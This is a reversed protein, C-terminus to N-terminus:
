LKSLENKIWEHYNAVRTYVGYYNERACGTGFSVVGLQYWTNEMELLLPGGSDGQCSDKGGATEGACIMNKTLNSYSSQCMENSIIPVDVEQLTNSTLGGESLKGWGIVTAKKGIISTDDKSILTLFPKNESKESLQVLAIDNDSTNPNYAPHPIFKSVKFVKGDNTTLDHRGIIAVDSVYVECHAATLLWNEAILSAGCYSSLQGSNNYYALSVAWPYAGVKVERGGVIKPQFKLNHELIRQMRASSSQHTKEKTRELATKM